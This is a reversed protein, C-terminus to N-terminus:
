RGTKRMSKIFALNAELVRLREAPTRKLTSEFLTVDEGYWKAWEVGRLRRAPPRGRRREAYWSRALSLRVAYDSLLRELDVTVAVVGDGPVTWSRQAPWAAIAEAALTWARALTMGAADQIARAFALRRAGAATYPPRLGLRAYANQVWRRSAGVATAFQGLTM